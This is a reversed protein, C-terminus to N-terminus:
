TEGKCFSKFREIFSKDPEVPRTTMNRVTALPADVFRAIRKAGFGLVYLARVRSVFADSYKRPASM